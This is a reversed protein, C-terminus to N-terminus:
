RALANEAFSAILDWCNRPQSQLILHPGDLERVAISPNANTLTSVARFPVLADHTPRLYMIPCDLHSLQDVVDVHLISRLRHALTASSTTRVARRLEDTLPFSSRDLFYRRAVWRPMPVRFLLSWPIAHAWRRAPSRAFSAVLCLMIIRDPYRHALMISLPGCFSEAIVCCGLGSDFLSSFHDALEAYGIDADDPLPYVTVDFPDPALVQFQDLLLDTGDLGPFVITKLSEM